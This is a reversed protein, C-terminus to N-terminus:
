DSEAPVDLDSDEEDEEYNIVSIRGLRASSRYGTPLELSSETGEVALIDVTIVELSVDDCDEM